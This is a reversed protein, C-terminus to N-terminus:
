SFTILVYVYLNIVKVVEILEQAYCRANQTICENLIIWFLFVNYHMLDLYFYIVLNRPDYYHSKYFYYSLYYIINSIFIGSWIALIHCYNLPYHITKNFTNQFISQFM